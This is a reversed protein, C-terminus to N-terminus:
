FIPKKIGKQKQIDQPETKEFWYNFYYYDNKNIVYTEGKYLFQIYSNGDKDENSAKVEIKANKPIMIKSGMNNRVAVQDKLNVFWGKKPRFWKSLIKRFYNDLKLKYEKDIYGYRGDSFLDTRFSERQIDNFKKFVGFFEEEGFFFSIYVDITMNANINIRLIKLDTYEDCDELFLDYKVAGYNNVNNKNIDKMIGVLNNVMMPTRYYQDLYPSDAHGYMSMKPDIAMGYGPGLPSPGVGNQSFQNFDSYSELIFNYKNFNLIKM